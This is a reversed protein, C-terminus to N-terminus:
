ADNEDSGRKKLKKPKEDKDKIQRNLLDRLQTAVPESMVLEVQAVQPLRLATIEKVKEPLEAVHTYFILRYDFPTFNGIAGNVYIQRFGEGRVVLQKHPLSPKKDETM